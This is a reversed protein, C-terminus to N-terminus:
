MLIVFNFFFVGVNLKEFVKHMKMDLEPSYGFVIAINKTTTTTQHTQTHTYSYRHFRIPWCSLFHLVNRNCKSPTKEPLM